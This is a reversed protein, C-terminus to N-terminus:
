IINKNKLERRFKMLNMFYRKIDRFFKVTSPSSPNRIFIVPIEKIKLGKYYSRIIIETDWFWFKDRIEDLIPLIKKRNFFKCGTETDKIEAKLLKKVLFRYGKHAIWRYFLTNANVIYERYAIAVDNGEKIAQVLPPIYHPGIELDVDIFGVIKGKAEKIGDTITKGRGENKEHFICKINSNNKAFDKIKQKTNDKSCDDILIIEYSYKTNGLTEKIEGLNKSLVEGENYCALVLSLDIKKKM